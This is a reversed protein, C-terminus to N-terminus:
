HAPFRGWGDVRVRWRVHPRFAGDHREVLGTAILYGPRGHEDPDDEYIFVRLGPHFQIVAGSSDSRQDERALLFVDQQMAQNFSVLLRPRDLRPWDVCAELGDRHLRDILLQDTGGYRICEFEQAWVARVMANLEATSKPQKKVWCAKADPTGSRDAEFGGFLEPAEVDPVGCMTCCGEEVYFDGAVNLSVRKRPHM